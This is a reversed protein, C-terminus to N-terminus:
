GVRNGTERQTALALEYSRRAGALDARAAQISAMNTLALAKGSRDNAADFAAIAEDYMKAAGALDGKQWLILAINNLSGAM